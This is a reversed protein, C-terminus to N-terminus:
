TAEQMRTQQIKKIHKKSKLVPLEVDSTGHGFRHRVIQYM